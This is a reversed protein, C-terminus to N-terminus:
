ELLRRLERFRKGDQLLGRLDNIAVGPQMPEDNITGLLKWVKIPGNLGDDRATGLTLDGLRDRLVLFGAYARDDTPALVIGKRGDSLQVYKGIYDLPNDSNKSNKAM